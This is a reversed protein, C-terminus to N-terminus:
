NNFFRLTQLTKALQSRQLYRNKLFKPFNKDILLFNRKKSFNDSFKYKKPNKLRKQRRKPAICEMRM